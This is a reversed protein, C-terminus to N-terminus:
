DHKHAAPEKPILADGLIFILLSFVVAIISGQIFDYTGGQMASIVYFLMQILLFTWFFTWFYRM